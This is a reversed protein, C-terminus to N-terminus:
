CGRKKAGISLAGFFVGFGRDGASSRVPCDTARAQKRKQGGGSAALGWALEWSVQPRRRPQALTSHLAPFLRRLPSKRVGEKKPASRYLVLSFGSVGTGLAQACRVTRRARRSEKRAEEPPLGAEPSSGPCRSAADRSHSPPIFPLPFMKTGVERAQYASEAGMDPRGRQSSYKKTNERSAGRAPDALGRGFCEGFFVFLHWACLKVLIIDGPLICFICM